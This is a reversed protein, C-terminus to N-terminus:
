RHLNASSSLQRISPVKFQHAFFDQNNLVV